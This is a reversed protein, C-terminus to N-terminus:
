EREEGFGDTFHFRYEKGTWVAGLGNMVITDINYKEIIEDVKVHKMNRYDLYIESDFHSGLVDRMARGTSDTVLLLNHGTNVGENRILYYENSLNNGDDDFASYYFRIYHDYYRDKTIKGAKYKDWLCLTVPTEKGTKLDISYCSRNGLDYEPVIFEDYGDYLKQLNHARSGRYEVGYLASFNWIRDPEKCPSLNMFDENIMNYIDKYGQMFGEYCWHHDSKYFMDKYGAEDKYILRKVKMYEPMAQAISEFYDPTDYGLEEDFWKTSNLSSVFYSYFKINPYLEHIHEIQKAHADLQIKDPSNVIPGDFIYDTDNFRFLNGIKTLSYEQSPFANLRPLGYTPWRDYDVRKSGNNNEAHYPQQNFAVAVARKFYSYANELLATYNAYHISVWDRGFFQDKLAGEFRESANAKYVISDKPPPNIVMDFSMLTRNELESTEMSEHFFYSVCCIIEIVLLLFVSCRTKM